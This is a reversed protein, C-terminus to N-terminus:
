GLITRTSKSTEISARAAELIGMVKENEVPTKKYCHISCRKKIVEFM